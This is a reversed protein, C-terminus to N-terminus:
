ALAARGPQPWLAGAALTAAAAVLSGLSVWYGARVLPPRFAFRLEHEGEPVVVAKLIGYAAHIEAPAGDVWAKWGPYGTETLVLLGPASTRVRITWDNRGMRTVEVEDGGASLALAEVPFGPAVLATSRYDFSPERLRAVVDDMTAATEARHVLFATPLAGTNEYVRLRGSEFVRFRGAAAADEIERSFPEDMPILYRINLLDLAPFWEPTLAAPGALVDYRDKDLLGTGTRQAFGAGTIGDFWRVFAGLQLAHYSAFMRNGTISGASVAGRYQLESFVALRDAEDVEDLFALLGPKISYQLPQVPYFDEDRAPYTLPQSFAFINPPTQWLYEGTLLLAAALAVAWRTRRGHAHASVVVAAILAAAVVAVRAAALGTLWMALPAAPVLGLAALAARRPSTAEAPGLWRDFQRLALVNVLFVLPQLIRAPERAQGLLPLRHIWGALFTDPWLSLLFAVLFTAAFAWRYPERRSVLGALALMALAAGAFIWRLMLRSMLFMPVDLIASFSRIYDLSVGDARTSLGILELSPLWQVAGIGVGAAVATVCLAGAKAVGTGGGRWRAALMGPALVAFVYGQCLFMQFDGTLLQVGLVLALGAAWNARPSEVVRWLALLALPTWSLLREAWVHGQSVVSPMFVFSLPTVLALTVAALRNRLVSRGLAYASLAALLHHLMMDWVLARPFELLGYLFTTPYYVGACGMAHNPYGAGMCPNWLPVEGDCIAQGTYSLVPRTLQLLDFPAHNPYAEGYLLYARNVFVFVVLIAAVDRATRWPGGSCAKSEAM